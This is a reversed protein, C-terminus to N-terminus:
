PPNRVTAVLARGSVAALKLSTARDVAVVIDLTGTDSDPTSPTTVALVRASEALVHAVPPATAVTDPPDSAL